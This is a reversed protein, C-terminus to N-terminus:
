RNFTALLLHRLKPRTDLFLAKNIQLLFGCLYRVLGHCDCFVFLGGFIYIESLYQVLFNKHVCTPVFFPIARDLYSDKQRKLNFKQKKKPSPCTNYEAKRTTRRNVGQSSIVYM